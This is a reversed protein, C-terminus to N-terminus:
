ELEFCYIDTDDDLVVLAPVDAAKRCKRYHRKMDTKLKDTYHPHDPNAYRDDAWAEDIYRHLEKKAQEETLRPLTDCDVLDILGNRVPLVVYEKPQDVTEIDCARIHLEGHGAFMEKQLSERSQQLFDADPLYREAYEKLCECLYEVAEEHTAHVKVSLEIDRTEYCSIYYKKM